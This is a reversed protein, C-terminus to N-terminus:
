AKVNKISILCYNISIQLMISKQADRINHANRGRLSVYKTNLMERWFFVIECTISTKKGM